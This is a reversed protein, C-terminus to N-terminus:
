PATKLNEELFRAFHQSENARKRINEFGRYVTQPHLSLARAATRKSHGGIHIYTYFTLWREFRPPLHKYISVFAQFARSSITEIESETLVPEAPKRGNRQPTLTAPIATKVGKKHRRHGRFDSNKKELAWGFRQWNKYATEMGYEEETIGVSSLYAQLTSWANAKPNSSIVSLVHRNIIEKHYKLLAYGTGNQHRLMQRALRDNVCFTVDETLTRKAKTHTLREHRLASLIVFLTDGKEITLPESAYEKLLIRRTIPNVPITVNQM